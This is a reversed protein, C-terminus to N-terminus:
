FIFLFINTYNSRVFFAALYTITKKKPSVPLPGHFLCLGIIKANPSSM